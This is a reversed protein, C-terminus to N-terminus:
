KMASRIKNYEPSGKKPLPKFGQGKKMYGISKAAEMFSKPKTNKKPPM